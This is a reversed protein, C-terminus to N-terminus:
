PLPESLRLLAQPISDLLEPIGQVWELGWSKQKSHQVTRSHQLSAAPLQALRHSDLSVPSSSVNREKKEKKKKKLMQFM